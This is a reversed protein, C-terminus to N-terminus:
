ITVLTFLNVNDAGEIRHNVIKAQHASLEKNLESSYLMRRYQNYTFFEAINLHQYLAEISFILQKDDFYLYSKQANDGLLCDVKSQEFSSENISRVFFTLTKQYVQEINM